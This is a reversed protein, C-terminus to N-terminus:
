IKRFYILYNNVRESIQNFIEKINEDAGMFNEERGKNVMETLENNSIDTGKLAQRHKSNIKRLKQVMQNNRNVSM